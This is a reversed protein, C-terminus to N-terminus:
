VGNRGATFGRKRTLKDRGAGNNGISGRETREERGTRRIFCVSKRFVYRYRTCPKDEMRSDFPKRPKIHREKRDIEFLVAHGVRMVVVTVPARDMVRELSEWMRQLGTEEKTM